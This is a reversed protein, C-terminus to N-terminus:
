ILLLIGPLEASIHSCQNKGALDKKLCEYEIMDKLQYVDLDPSWLKKTLILDLPIVANRESSGRHIIRREEWRVGLVLKLTMTYDVDNVEVIDLEQILLTVELPNGSNYYNPSRIRTYNRPLYFDGSLRLLEVTPTTTKKSNSTERRSRKSNPKSNSSSVRLGETNLERSFMMPFLSGKHSSCFDFAFLQLLIFWCLLPEFYLFRM